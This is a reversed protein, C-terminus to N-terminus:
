WQFLSNMPSDLFSIGYIRRILPFRQQIEIENSFKNGLCSYVERLTTLGQLKQGKLLEREIETWDSQFRQIIVLFLTEYINCRRVLPDEGLMSLLVFAIGVESHLLWSM